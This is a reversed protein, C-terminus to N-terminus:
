ERCVLIGFVPRNVSVSQTCVRRLREVLAGKPNFILVWSRGARSMDDFGDQRCADYVQEYLSDCLAHDVREPHYGCQEIISDQAGAGTAGTYASVDGFDREGAAELAAIVRDQCTMWADESLAIRPAGSLVLVICAGVAVARHDRPHSLRTM